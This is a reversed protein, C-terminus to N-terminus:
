LYKSQFNNSFGKINGIIPPATFFSSTFRAEEEENKNQM